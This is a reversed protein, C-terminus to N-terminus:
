LFYDIINESLVPMQLNSPFPDLSISTNATISALDNIEFRETDNSFLTISENRTCTSEISFDNWQSLNKSSLISENAETTSPEQKNKKFFSHLNPQKATRKLKFFFFFDFCQSVPQRPHTNKISFNRNWYNWIGSWNWNM